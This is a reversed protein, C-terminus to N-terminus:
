FQCVGQARNDGKGQVLLTQGGNVPYVEFTTSTGTITLKSAGSLTGASITFSATVPAKSTIVNNGFGNPNIGTNYAITNVAYELTGANASTFTMTGLMNLMADVPANPGFPVSFTVLMGCTGSTPMTAAISQSASSMTALCALAVSAFKKKM